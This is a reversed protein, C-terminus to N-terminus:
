SICAYILKCRLVLLRVSHFGDNKLASYLKTPPPNGPLWRKWLVQMSVTSGLCWQWHFWGGTESCLRIEKMKKLSNQSMFSFWLGGELTSESWSAVTWQGIFSVCVSLRHWFYPLLVCDEWSARSQRHSHTYIHTAQSLLSNTSKNEQQSGDSRLRRYLADEKWGDTRLIDATNFRGAWRREWREVRKLDGLM